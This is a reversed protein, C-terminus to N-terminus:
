KRNRSDAQQEQMKAIKGSKQRCSGRSKLAVNPVRLQVGRHLEAYGVDM